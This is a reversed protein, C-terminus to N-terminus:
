SIQRTVLLRVIFEARSRVQVKRYIRTLHIEVTRSSIGLAVGIKHNSFGKGALDAVRQEQRTLGSAAPPDAARRQDAPARTRGQGDDLAERLARVAGSAPILVPLRASADDIVARAGANDGARWLLMAEVVRAYAEALPSPAAREVLGPGDHARRLTATVRVRAAALAAPDAAEDPDWVRLSRFSARDATAVLVWELRRVENRVRVLPDGGRFSQQLLRAVGVIARMGRDPRIAESALAQREADRPRGAWLAARAAVAAARAREAGTTQASLAVGIQEAVGVAGRELQVTALGLLPMVHRDQVSRTARSAHWAAALSPGRRRLERALAIHAASLAGDDAAALIEARATANVFRYRGDGFLILRPIAGTLVADIDIAAADLLVGARDVISVSAILLFRREAATLAGSEGQVQVTTTDLDAGSRGPILLDAIAHTM